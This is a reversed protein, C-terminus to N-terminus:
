ASVRHPPDPSIRRVNLVDLWFTATPRILRLRVEIIAVHNGAKWSFSHLPCIAVACLLLVVPPLIVTRLKHRRKMRHAFAAKTEIEIPFNRGHGVMGRGQCRNLEEREVVLTQSLVPLTDNLLEDVSLLPIVRQRGGIRLTGQLGNAISVPLTEEMLVADRNSVCAFSM